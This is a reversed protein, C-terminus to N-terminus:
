NPLASMQTKREHSEKRNNTERIVELNVPINVRLMMTILMDISFKESMMQRLNSIRPQNCGMLKAAEVQTWKNAAIIELIETMLKIKILDRMDVVLDEALPIM